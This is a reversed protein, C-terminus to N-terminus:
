AKYNIKYTTMSGERMADGQDLHEDGGKFFQPTADKRLVFGFTTLYSDYGDYLDCEVQLLPAPKVIGQVFSGGASINVNYASWGKYNVASQNGQHPFNYQATASRMNLEYRFGRSDDDLSTKRTGYVNQYISPRMLADTDSAYGSCFGAHNIECTHVLRKTDDISDFEVYNYKNAISRVYYASVNDVKMYDNYHRSTSGIDVTNTYTEGSPSVRCHKFVKDTTNNVIQLTYSDDAYASASAALLGLISIKQIIKM